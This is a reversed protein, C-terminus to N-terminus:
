KRGFLYMAMCLLLAALVALWPFLKQWRAERALRSLVRQLGAREEDNAAILLLREWIDRAYYHPLHVAAKAAEAIIGARDQDGAKLQIIGIKDDSFIFLLYQHLLQKNMRYVDVQAIHANLKELELHLYGPTLIAAQKHFRGSLWREYDYLARKEVHSLVTYAEHIERFRAEAFM